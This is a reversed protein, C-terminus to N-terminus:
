TDGIMLNLHKLIGIVAHNQFNTIKEIKDSPPNRKHLNSYFANKLEITTNCISIITTKPYSRMDIVVVKITDLYVKNKYIYL